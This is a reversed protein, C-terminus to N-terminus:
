HFNRGKPLAEKMETQVLLQAHAAIDAKTRLNQPRKVEDARALASLGSGRGSLLGLLPTLDEMQDAIIHIVGSENQLRGTVAVFRAGIVLARLREYVKPWVIINAIGTEDELTMFIVGSASGPRQRVLVLGGVIIRPRKSTDITALASAPLINRAALHQRVFSVPHAKLSLTLHRYDEVVEEGPPMPPLHADPELPIFAVARLLPLDDKDGARNLGRVAWLADRRSLGLSSFADAEALHGLVSPSLGTRLWLDRVSDYGGGRREVLLEM